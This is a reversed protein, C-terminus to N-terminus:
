QFARAVLVGARHRWSNRNQTRFRAVADNTTPDQPNLRLAVHADHRPDLGSAARMVARGYHFEWNNPDRDLAKQMARLGRQPYGLSAECYAIVEYPEARSGLASSSSRAKDIAKPCDGQRFATLSQDLRTQSVFVLVPIIAIGLCSLAIAARVQFAPMRPSSIERANTALIAGGIAFLWITVAPMEWDWDFGAHLAWAIAAALIAMYVTRNRRHARSVAGVGIMGLMCILLVLGVLGLESMVEVYLSHADTVVSQNPRKKDWILSYTGAGKGEVPAEDFGKIAAKWQDIRGDNGPDTLRTRLDSSTALVNGKVFRDYQHKVRGPVGAAVAIVLAIAAAGAFASRVTSRSVPLRARELWRDPVLLVTRTVIAALCCLAVVRAVHHGQATAAISTPNASALLDANYAVVLAIATTPGAALLGTVLGRPRALVAYAVLGVAGAGIGGRSFTFLLTAALAPIVGAALPRVLRPEGLSSTLHLCLILGLSSLIGLANWYTLPYSLRNHSINPAITWVDPLVRTILGSVCVVVIGLALFRVMWRIRQSTRAVSGFLLLAFLYLLVRNFEVLSRGLSDSWTASLLTWLAYLALAGGALVLPRSLGEFPDDAFVAKLALFAALVVAVFAPTNAFYGGANFGFYITLLGPLPLLGACAARKITDM